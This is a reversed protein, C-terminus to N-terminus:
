EGKTKDPRSILWAMYDPADDYKIIDESNLKGHMKYWAVAFEVMLRAKNESFLGPNPTAFQLMTKSVAEERAMAKTLKNEAIQVAYATVLGLVFKFVEWFSPEVVDWIQSLFDKVSDWFTSM